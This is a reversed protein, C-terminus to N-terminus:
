HDKGTRRRANKSQIKQHSFFHDCRYSHRDYFNWVDPFGPLSVNGADPVLFRCRGQDFNNRFNNRHAPLSSKKNENISSTLTFYFTDYPHRQCFIIRRCGFFAMAFHSIWFHWTWKHLRWQLANRIRGFFWRWYHHTFTALHVFTGLQFNRNTFSPPCRTNRLSGPRKYHGTVIADTKGAKIFCWWCFRRNIFRSRFISEVITSELQIKFFRNKRSFM